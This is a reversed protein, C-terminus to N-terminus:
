GSKQKELEDTTKLVKKTEKENKKMVSEEKQILKMM